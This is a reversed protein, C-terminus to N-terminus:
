GGRGGRDSKEGVDGSEFYDNGAGGASKAGGGSSKPKAPAKSAGTGKAGIIHPIVFSSESQTTFFVHIVAGVLM